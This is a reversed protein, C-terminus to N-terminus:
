DLPIVYDFEDGTDFARRTEFLKLNRSGFDTIRTELDAQHDIYSDRYIHTTGDTIKSTDHRAEWVIMDSYMIDEGFIIALYSDVPLIVRFIAEETQMDWSLALEADDALEYIAYEQFNRPKNKDETATHM